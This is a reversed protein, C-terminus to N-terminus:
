ISGTSFSNIIKSGGTDSDDISSINGVLGGAYVSRNSSNKAEISCSSSCSDITIGGFSAHGFLGGVYISEIDFNVSISGSVSCNKFTTNKARAAIGGVVLPYITLPNADCYIEVNLDKVTVSILEGFLGSEVKSSESGLTITKGNGDFTYSEDYKGFNFATWISTVTINDTLKASYNNTTDADSWAAAFARLETETGIQAVGDVVTFGLSGAASVSFCPLVYGIMLLVFLVLSLRKKM